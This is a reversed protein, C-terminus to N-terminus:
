ADEVKIHVFLSSLELRHWKDDYLSVMRYGYQLCEFPITNSAIFDDSGTADYDQNRSALCFALTLTTHASASGVSGCGPFVRPLLPIM